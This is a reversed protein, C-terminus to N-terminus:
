AKPELKWAVVPMSYETHGKRIWYPTYSWIQKLVEEAEIKREAMARRLWNLTRADQERGRWEPNLLRPCTKVSYEFEIGSVFVKTDYFSQPEDALWHRPFHVTGEDGAHRWMATEGNLTLPNFVAHVGNRDIRLVKMDELFSVAYGRQKYLDALPDRMDWLDLTFGDVDGHDCLFEGALVDQVLGGWICTRTSCLSSVEYVDQLLALHHKNTESLAM